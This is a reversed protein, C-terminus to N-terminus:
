KTKYLQWWPVYPKDHHEYHYGFFYCTLFAWLHNKVLTHAFHPNNPPHRHPIYTGFYFIQFTAAIAPIMWFLVVNPTAFFVQLGHFTLAMLIFQPVGLYARLFLLYWRWFPGQYVDPDHETGVQQHHLHHNKLLKPYYNYAFLGACLWGITRNIHPDNPAVTGHMADHATIFMGAYLHTQLLMWLYPWATYWDHPTHLALLLSTSWLFVVTLAIVIGTWRYSPINNANM